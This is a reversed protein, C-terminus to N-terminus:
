QDKCKPFLDWSHCRAYDGNRNWGYWLWESCLLCFAALNSGVCGCLSPYNTPFVFVVDGGNGTNELCINITYLSDDIHRDLIFQKEGYEIYFSYINKIKDIINKDLILNIIDKILENDIVIKGTKHMTNPKDNSLLKINTLIKDILKDDIKFKIINYYEISKEDIKSNNFNSYINNDKNNIQINKYYNNVFFDFNNKGNYIDIPYNGNLDRTNLESYKEMYKMLLLKDKKAIIHLITQGGIIYLPFDSININKTKLDIKGGVDIYKQIGYEWYNDFLFHIIFWGGCEEILLDKRLSIIKNFKIENRTYITELIDSFEVFM